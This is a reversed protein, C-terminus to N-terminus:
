LQIKSCATSRGGLVWSSEQATSGLLHGQSLPGQALSKSLFHDWSLGTLPHLPLVPFPFSGLLHSMEAFNWGWSWGVLFSLTQGWAFCSLQAKVSRYWGGEARAAEGAEPAGLVSVPASQWLDFSVPALAPASPFTLPVWPSRPPTGVIDMVIDYGFCTLFWALINYSVGCSLM